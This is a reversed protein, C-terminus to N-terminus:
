RLTSRQRKASLSACVGTASLETVSIGISANITATSTMETGNTVTTNSSSDEDEIVVRVRGAGSVSGSVEGMGFQDVRKISFSGTCFELIVPNSTHTIVQTRGRTTVTVPCEHSAASECFLALDGSSGSSFTCLSRGHSQWFLDGTGFRTVIDTPETNTGLLCRAQHMFTLRAEGGQSVEVASAGAIKTPGKTARIAPLLPPAITTSGRLVCLQDFSGEVGCWSTRPLLSAARRGYAFHVSGICLYLVWFAISGRFLRM